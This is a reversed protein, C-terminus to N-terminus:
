FSIRRTRRWREEHRRHNQTKQRHHICRFQWRPTGDRWVRGTVVEFGQGLAFAQLRALCHDSSRFEDGTTPSSLWILPNQSIARLLLSAPPQEPLKQFTPLITPGNRFQLVLSELDFQRTQFRYRPKSLACRTDPSCHLWFVFISRRRPPRSPLSTNATWLDM